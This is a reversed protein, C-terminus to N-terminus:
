EGRRDIENKIRQKYGAIMQELQESTFNVQKNRQVRLEDIAERGFTTEMYIFYEEKRGNHVVNCLGCQPHIGLEDFLISNFRGDIFHGAQIQKWPMKRQCSVCWVLLDKGERRELRIAKSLLEWARKKLARLSKKKAPKRRLATRKMPTKRKLATRKM